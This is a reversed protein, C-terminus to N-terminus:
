PWTMDGPSRRYRSLCIPACLTNRVSSDLSTPYPLCSRCFDTTRWSQHPNQGLALLGLGTLFMKVFDFSAFLPGIQWPRCQLFKYTKLTPEHFTNDNYRHSARFNNNDCSSECLISTVAMCSMLHVPSPFIFLITDDRVAAILFMM